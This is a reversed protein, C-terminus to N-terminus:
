VYPTTPLTLHTYSVATVHSALSDLNIPTETSDTFATQLSHTISFLNLNEGAGSGGITNATVYTFTYTAMEGPTPNDVTVTPQAFLASIPAIIALLLIKKM